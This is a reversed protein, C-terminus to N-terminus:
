ARHGRGKHDFREGLLLVPWLTEACHIEARREAEYHAESLLRHSRKENKFDQVAKSLSTATFVVGEIPGIAIQIEQYTMGERRMALVQKVPIVRGSM